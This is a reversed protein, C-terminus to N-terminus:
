TKFHQRHKHLVRLETEQKPNDEQVTHMNTCCNDSGGTQEVGIKHINIKIKKLMNIDPM